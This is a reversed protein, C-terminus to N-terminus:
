PLLLQQKMAMTTGRAGWILLSDLLSLFIHLGLFNSIGKRPSKPRGKSGPGPSLNGKYGQKSPRPEKAPKNLDARSFGHLEFEPRAAAKCSRLVRVLTAVLCKVITDEKSGFPFHSHQFTQQPRALAESNGCTLFQLCPLPSKSM